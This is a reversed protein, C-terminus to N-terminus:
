AFSQNGSLGKKKEEREENSKQWATLQKSISEIMEVSLAFQRLSIQKLDSLLRLQIKAVIIKDRATELLGTKESTSNAKYILVLVDTLENKLKEALTYRYDRHVNKGIKYFYTLLEYTMKYVPLNDYNAM